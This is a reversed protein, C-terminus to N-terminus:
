CPSADDLAVVYLTSIISRYIKKTGREVPSASITVWYIRGVLYFPAITWLDVVRFCKPSLTFRGFAGAAATVAVNLAFVSWLYM